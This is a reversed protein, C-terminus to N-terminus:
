RAGKRKDTIKNFVARRFARRIVDPMGAAGEPAQDGYGQKALARAAAHHDGDHDLLAYAHFKTYATNEEFPDANSSFVYLLDSGAYDTTASTGELKGPRRWHDCGARRCVWKWKHPELIEAWDARENFDDGPRLRGGSSPRSRAPPREREPEVWENLQRACQLLVEREEPTITPIQTLDRGGIFQYCRGTKHCAAPSPPALCYGGEGKLEIATKAKQGDKEPDPVRALKQNGGFESCRYYAHLGPRPTKVRVLRALLGPARQEVLACWKQAVDWNDCDIIELGGSVEGGIVAMGYEEGDALGKFWRRLEARTPQREKLHGWPRRHKGAEDDWVHPMLTWAPMKQGDATIPVVSLGSLVYRKAARHVESM